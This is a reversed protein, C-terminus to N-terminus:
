RAETSENFRGRADESLRLSKTVAINHQARYQAGVGQEPFDGPVFWCAALSDELGRFVLVFLVLVVVVVVETRAAASCARLCSCSYVGYM